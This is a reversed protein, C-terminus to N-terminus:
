FWVFIDITHHKYYWKLPFLRFSWGGPFRQISNFLYNYMISHVIICSNFFRSWHLVSKSLHGYYQSLYFSFCTIFYRYWPGIKLFSLLFIFLFDIIYTCTITHLTFLICPLMHCTGSTVSSPLAVTCPSLPKLKGKVM